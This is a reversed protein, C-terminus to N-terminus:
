ATELVIDAYDRRMICSQPTVTEPWFGRAELERRLDYNNAITIYSGIDKPVFM